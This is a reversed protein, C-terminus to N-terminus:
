LMWSMYEEGDISETLMSSPSDGQHVQVVQPLHEGDVKKAYRVVLRRALVLDEQLDEEHTYLSDTRRLLATPGPHDDMCLLIDNESKLRALQGNDKEDRGVILWGGGPLLFQRGIMMSLIDTSNIEDAPVVFEGAYM